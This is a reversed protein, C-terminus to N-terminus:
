YIEIVQYTWRKRRMAKKIGRNNDVCQIGILYMTRKAQIVEVHGQVIISHFVLDLKKDQHEKEVAKRMTSIEQSANKEYSFSNSLSLRRVDIDDEEGFDSFEM